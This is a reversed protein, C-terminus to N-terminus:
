NHVLTDGGNSRLWGTEFYAVRLYRDSESIRGSCLTPKSIALQEEGSRWLHLFLHTIFGCTDSREDSPFSFRFLASSESPVAYIPWREILLVDHPLCLATPSGLTLCRLCFAAFINPIIFFLSFWTGRRALDRRSYSVRPENSENLLIRLVIPLLLPLPLLLLRYRYYDITASLPLYSLRYHYRTRIRPAPRQNPSRSARVQTFCSTCNNCM